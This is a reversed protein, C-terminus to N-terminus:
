RKLKEMKMPLPNYFGNGLTAAICNQGKRIEETLDYESYYIRKSYNTWAPDLYNKGVPNGNISANYYGAATIYLTASKVEKKVPFEKRFLPAPFDGYMLSDAVPWERNDTIWGANQFDSNENKCSPNTHHGCGSILLFLFSSVILNKQANVALIIKM